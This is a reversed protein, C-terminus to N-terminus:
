SLKPHVRTLWRGGRGLAAWGGATGPAGAAARGRMSLLASLRRGSEQGFGALSKLCRFGLLLSPAVEVRGPHAPVEQSLPLPFCPPCRPIPYPFLGGARPVRQQLEMSGPLHALGACGKGGCGKGGEMGEGRDWRVWASGLLHRPEVYTQSFGRLEWAGALAAGLSCPL